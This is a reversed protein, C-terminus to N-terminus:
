LLFGVGLSIVTWGINRQGTSVKDQYGQYRAELRSSFSQSIWAGLGLGGSYTGSQGSKLRMQGYAGLLYLDFQAVSSDFLNLKGYLPYYTLTGVVSDKPYDIEPVVVNGIPSAADANQFIRKGEANLDNDYNAYRVGLSIKPSFHFDVMGGLGKTDLYPDGGSVLGYNVGLELRSDRSVARKQVVATRNNPDYKDARELIEKKAGLSELDKTLDKAQSQFAILSLTLLSLISKM